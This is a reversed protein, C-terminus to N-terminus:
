WCVLVCPVSARRSHWTRLCEADCSSDDLQGVVPKM